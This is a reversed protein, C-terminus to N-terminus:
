LWRKRRFFIFLGGGVILVALWFLPYGYEFGLEPLNFPSASTDFNMGYVGALFGLPIFITAIITLVKMVENMRNSVSSLYIDLLGSVMDRFTEVTDIVQIAHEYLDRLYMKTSSQILGSEMRDLGGIVERLPWVARRIFVLERKLRHITDLHASVPNAVLEEELAEVREGISELVVFYHDVIADILAYALYDATMFRVRPVTKKIRERVPQFVDGRKEQFSIVFNNGFILSIQESLIDHNEPKLYLMKLMVLIFKESEELKPRHGTNVIDELILPHLDFHSGLKEVLGIDHIGSLNIWSVTPSDKFSFCDEVRETTKDTYNTQDYDIISIEVPEERHEGVYVVAGPKLGLKKKARKVLRAM